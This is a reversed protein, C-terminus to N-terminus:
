ALALTAEPFLEEAAVHQPIVKQEVNFRVFTELTTRSSELGYPIPDEGVIRAMRLLAQDAPGAEDGARLRGMYFAKAAGFM